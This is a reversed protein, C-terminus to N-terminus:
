GGGPANRAPLREWSEPGQDLSEGVHLESRGLVERLEVRREGLYQFTVPSSHVVTTDRMDAATAGAM